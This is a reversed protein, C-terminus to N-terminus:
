LALDDIYHPHLHIEYWLRDHCVLDCMGIECIYNHYITSGDADTVFAFDDAQSMLVYGTTGVPQGDAWLAYTASMLGSTTNWYWDTTYWGATWLNFPETFLYYNNAFSNIKSQFKTCLILNCVCNYYLFLLKIYTTHVNQLQM